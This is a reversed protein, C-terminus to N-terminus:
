NEQPLADVVIQTAVTIPESAFAAAGFCFAVLLALVFRRAQGDCTGEKGHPLFPPPFTQQGNWRGPM